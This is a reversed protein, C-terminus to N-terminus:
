EVILKGVMGMARHNGVSCYYEFEGTQTPTFSIEAVEKPNIIPTRANFEDIVWDHPYTGNNTLVIKIMEGKKVRIEKPSFLFNAGSIEITRAQAETTIPSEIPQTQWIILGTIAVILVLAALIIKKKM